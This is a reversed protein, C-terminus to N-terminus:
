HRADSTTFRELETAQVSKTMSRRFRTSCNQYEKECNRLRAFTRRRSATPWEYNSLRKYAAAFNRDDASRYEERKKGSSIMGFWWSNITLNMIVNM